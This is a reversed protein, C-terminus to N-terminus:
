GTVMLCTSVYLATCLKLRSFYNSNDKKPAPILLLERVKSISKREAMRIYILATTIMKNRRISEIEKADRYRYQASFKYFSFLGRGCRFISRKGGAGIRNVLEPKLVAETQVGILNKKQNVFAIKNSFLYHLKLSQM